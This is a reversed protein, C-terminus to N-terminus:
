NKLNKYENENKGQSKLIARYLCNGDREVDVMEYNNLDM